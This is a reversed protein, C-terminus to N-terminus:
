CDFPVYSLYYQFATKNISKGLPERSKLYPNIQKAEDLFVVLVM